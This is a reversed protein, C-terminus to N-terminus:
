TCIREFKIGVVINSSGAQVVFCPKNRLRNRGKIRQRGLVSQNDFKSVQMERKQKPTMLAPNIPFARNRIVEPAKAFKEKTIIRGTESDM